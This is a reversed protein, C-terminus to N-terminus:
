RSLSVLGSVFLPRIVPVRTRELTDSKCCSQSNAVLVDGQEHARLNELEREQRLPLDLAVGSHETHGFSIGIELMARM